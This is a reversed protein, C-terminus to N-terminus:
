IRRETLESGLSLTLSEFDFELKACVVDVTVIVVVVVGKLGVDVHITWQRGM